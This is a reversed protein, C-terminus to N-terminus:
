TNRWSRSIDSDLFTYGIDIEEINNWAIGSLGSSTQVDLLIGSAPGPFRLKYTYSM